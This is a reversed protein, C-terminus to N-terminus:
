GSVLDPQMLFPVWRLAVGVEKDQVVHILRRLTMIECANMSLVSWLRWRIM